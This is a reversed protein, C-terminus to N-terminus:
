RGDRQFASQHAPGAPSEDAYLTAAVARVHRLLRSAGPSLVHDRRLLIGFRDMDCPLDIPLIALERAGVYYRAVELPMVHLFNTHQLLSQIVSMATTEIVNSPPELENRRFLMDFRHRLISGRPSLIWGATSIAQLTLDTRELM